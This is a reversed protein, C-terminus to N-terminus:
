KQWNGQFIKIAANWDVQKANSYYCWSPTRVHCSTEIARAITLLAPNVMASKTV